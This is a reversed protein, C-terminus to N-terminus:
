GMPGEKKSAPAIGTYGSPELFVSLGNKEDWRYIKNMPVDSFLLANLENVWLPGESWGFGEALIEIVADKPVYLDMEPGLREVSGITKQQQASLSAVACVLAFNLLTKKM